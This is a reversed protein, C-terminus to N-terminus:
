TGAFKSLRRMPEEIEALQGTTLSVCARRYLSDSLPPLMTSSFAIASRRSARPSVRATMMTTCGYRVAVCSHFLTTM